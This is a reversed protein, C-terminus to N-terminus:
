FTGSNLSISNLISSISDLILSIIKFAFYISGM